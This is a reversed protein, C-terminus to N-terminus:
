KGQNSEDGQDGKKQPNHLRALSRRCPRFLSCFVAKRCPFPARISLGCLHVKGPPHSSEPGDSCSFINENSMQNSERDM